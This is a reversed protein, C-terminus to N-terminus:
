QIFVKKDKNILYKASMEKKIVEITEKHNYLVADIENLKRDLFDLKKMILELGKKHTIITESMTRLTISMTVFLDVMEDDIM